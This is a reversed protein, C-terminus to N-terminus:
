APRGLAAMRSEPQEAGAYLYRRALEVARAHQAVARGSLNADPANEPELQPYEDMGRFFALTVAGPCRSSGFVGAKSGVSGFCVGPLRGERAM